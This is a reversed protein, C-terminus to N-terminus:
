RREANLQHELADLMPRVARDWYQWDHGGATEHYEYAIKRTPLEKVFERNVKLFRDANGCAVYFYPLHEPDAQKLLTFVDNKARM